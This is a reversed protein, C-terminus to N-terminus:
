FRSEKGLKRLANVASVIEDAAAVGKAKEALWAAGESVTPVTKTPTPSMVSIGTLFARTATGRLGSAEVVQAAGLTKPGYSTQLERIADRDEKSITPKSIESIVQFTVLKGSGYSVAASYASRLANFHPAKPSTGHWISIGMSRWVGITATEDSYTLELGLM